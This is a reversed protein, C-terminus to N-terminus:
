KINNNKRFEEFVDILKVQNDYKPTKKCYDIKGWYMGDASRESPHPYRVIKSKPLCEKLSKKLQVAKYGLLIVTQFDPRDTLFTKITETNDKQNALIICKNKLELAVDVGSSGNTTWSAIQNKAKDTGYILCIIRRFADIDESIDKPIFAAVDFPYDTGTMHTVLGEEPYKDDGVILISM